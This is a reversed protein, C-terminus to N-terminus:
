GDYSRLQPDPATISFSHSYLQSCARWAEVGRQAYTSYSLTIFPFHFSLICAARLLALYLEIMCTKLVRPRCWRGGLYRRMCSSEV